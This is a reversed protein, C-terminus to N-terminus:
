PIWQLHDDCRLSSHRRVAAGPVGLVGLAGAVGLIPLAFFEARGLPHRPPRHQRAPKSGPTPAAASVGFLVGPDHHDPKSFDFMERSVDRTRSLVPAVAQM